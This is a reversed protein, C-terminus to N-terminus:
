SVFDIEPVTSELEGCTVLVCQPSQAIPLPNIALLFWLISHIFSPNAEPLAQDTGLSINKAGGM